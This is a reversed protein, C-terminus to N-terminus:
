EPPVFIRGSVIIMREGAKVAQFEERRALLLDSGLREAFGLMSM